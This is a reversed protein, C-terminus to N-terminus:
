RGVLDPDFEQGGPLLALPIKRESALATLREVGYPWYAAGGLLRVAIFRAGDLTREIYADVSLNHGLAMLNALRLTPKPEALRDHARALSALESDAASIVVIDGPSQGLDVAQAGGDIVGTQTALLHM